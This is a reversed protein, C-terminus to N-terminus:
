ATVTKRENQRSHHLFFRSAAAWTQFQVKRGDRNTFTKFGTTITAHFDFMYDVWEAQRVIKMMYRSLM